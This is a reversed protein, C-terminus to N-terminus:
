APVKEWSRDERGDCCEKVMMPTNGRKLGGDAGDITLDCVVAHGSVLSVPQAPRKALTAPTSTRVGGSAKSGSQLSQPASSTAEESSALDTSSNSGSFEKDSHSLLGNSAKYIYILCVSLVLISVIAVIGIFRRNM